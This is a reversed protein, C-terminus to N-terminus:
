AFKPHVIGAIRVSSAKRELTIEVVSLIRAANYIQDMM